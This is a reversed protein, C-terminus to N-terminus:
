GRAAEILARTMARARPGNARGHVSLVYTVPGHAWVYAVHGGNLGGGREYGVVQCVEVPERDLRSARCASPGDAAGPRKVGIDVVLHRVAPTWTVDYRWHGGNTDVQRGALRSLSLSAFNTSYGGRFRRERSFPGATQVKLAGDPVLPPCTRAGAPAYARQEACVERYRRPLGATLDLARPTVRFAFRAVTRRRDPFGAPPHCRGSAPCAYAQIDTVTGRFVGACWGEPGGEGRAPDLEATLREDPRAGDVYVRDRNNVCGSAPHVARAEVVYRRATDGRVGTAHASTISVVVRDHAGATRPAVSVPDPAGSAAAVADPQRDAGGGCGVVAVALLLSAAVAASARVRTPWEAM